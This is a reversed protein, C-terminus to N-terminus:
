RNVLEQILAVMKETADPRGLKKSRERMKRLLEKNMILDLIKEKLRNGSLGKEPIVRAAGEGQLVKANGWQHASTAYPYPILISPLGRATIEALTMAGSRCIVLDSAAYAYEMRFLYPFILCEVKLSDLSSRVWKLDKEGTIFIAQIQRGMGEKELGRIAETGFLNISHAGQSGGLFLLTFKSEELGLKRIGEERKIELIEPRIPNGVLYAKNRARLPLYNKTQPFSIAIKSAWRCLFRNTLSPRLNQECILSPIGLFFALIVMPFSHFSGMGIVIRPRFRLLIFFSQFFSIGLGYVFEMWKWSLARPFRLINIKELEFKQPSVLRSELGRKGGVWLIRGVLNHRKLYSSLTLAPYLHGGTGGAAILVRM